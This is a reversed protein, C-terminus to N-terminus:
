SRTSNQAMFILDRVTDANLAGRRKTITNGATSFARESPVSSATCGLWKRALPALTRFESHHEKWWLLPSPPTKDKKNAKAESSREIYKELERECDRILMEALLRDKAKNFGEAAFLRSNTTYPNLLAIWIIEAETRSDFREEMLALFSKRVSQMKSLVKPAYSEAQVTKYLEDFMGSNKLVAKLSSIIFYLSVLTPYSEAGLQDSAVSFPALLEVLCQITFWQASTPLKLKKTSRDDFEKKGDPTGLYFFFRQLTLQLEVFRELM